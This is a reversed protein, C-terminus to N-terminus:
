GNRKDAEPFLVSLPQVLTQRKTQPETIFAWCPVQDVQAGLYRAIEYVDDPRFEEIPQGQAELAMLLCSEGTLSNVYPRDLCLVASHKSDKM